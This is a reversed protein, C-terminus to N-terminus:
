ATPHKNRYLVPVAFSQILIQPAQSWDWSCSGLFISPYQVAFEQAASLGYKM